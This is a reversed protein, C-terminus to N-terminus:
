RLIMPLYLSRNPDALLAFDTFHTVVINVTGGGTGDPIVAVTEVPKWSSSAEDWYAPVLQDMGIGLDELQGATFPIVLTVPRLFNTIPRRSGEGIDYAHLRYGFSVPQAGGDGALEPLPRVTLAVTGSVAMAGAPVHVESSDSMTFYQDEDAQFTFAQSDPITATVSLVLTEALNNIGEEPTITLSDSRLFDSEESSVAQITWSLGSKLRLVFNGDPGAATHISVGDASRARVLATHPDDGYTVAGRVIADSRRFSLDVTVNAQADVEVTTPAPSILQDRFVERRLREGYAASVRYNGAPVRVRYEGSRDTYTWRVVAASDDSIESVVVRVGPLPTAGDPATVTGSVTGFTALQALVFDIDGVTSGEGNNFPLFVRQVRPRQVIYGSTPDVFAHVWWTSGGQGQVDTTAVPLDYSGDVPNVRTRAWGGSNSAAWVSGPVDTVTVGDRDKLAGTIHSDNATIPIDLPDSIPQTVDVQVRSLATFHVDPPFAVGITYTPALSSSLKLTFTGDSLRASPGATPHGDEGRYLAYARGNVGETLPESTDSDVTRGNVTVDAEAILLDQTATADDSTLVVRQPSEAAVYPQEELPMARLLWTGSIVKLDYSGGDGTLTQEFEAGDLRWARVPIGAPAAGGDLVTVTGSISAQKELVGLEGVDITDGVEAYHVLSRLTVPAAWDDNELTLSLLVVGPLVKVTFSGDTGVQVSNGQGEQNEARIWARNPEDFTAEGPALLQGTVTVSATEVTFDQTADPPVSVLVPDATYVWDPSTTTVRAPRVSLTYAGSPLGELSYAGTEDTPATKALNSRAAVVAADDVAEGDHTVVGSISSTVDPAALAAGAYQSGFQSVLLALMLLLVTGISGMGVLRSRANGAFMRHKM